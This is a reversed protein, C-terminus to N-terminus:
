VIIDECHNKRNDHSGKKEGRLGKGWLQVKTNFNYPKTTRGKTNKESTDKGGEKKNNNNGHPIYTEQLYSM